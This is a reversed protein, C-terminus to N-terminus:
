VDYSKKYYKSYAITKENNVNNKSPENNIVKIELSTQKYYEFINDFNLKPINICISNTNFKNQINKNDLEMKSEEEYSEKNSSDSSSCNNNNIKKENNNDDIILQELSLFVKNINESIIDVGGLSSKDNSITTQNNNHKFKVPSNSLTNLTSLESIHHSIINKNDKIVKKPYFIPSDDTNNGNILEYKRKKYEKIKNEIKFSM